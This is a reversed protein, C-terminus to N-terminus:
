SRQAESHGAVFANFLYLLSTETVPSNLFWVLDHRHVHGHSNKAIIELQRVANDQVFLKLEEPRHFSPIPNRLTRLLELM